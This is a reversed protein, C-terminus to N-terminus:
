QSPSAASGLFTPKRWPLLLNLLSFPPQDIDIFMTHESNLVLAGYRNRTVVNKSDLETIVEEKIEVRYEEEKKDKGDIRRQVTELRERASKEADLKSHNSGGLFSAQKPRGDIILTGQVKQWFKYTRM